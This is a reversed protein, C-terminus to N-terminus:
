SAQYAECSIMSNPDTMANDACISHIFYRKKPTELIMITIAKSAVLETSERDTVGIGKQYPKDPRGKYKIHVFCACHHYKGGYDRLAKADQLLIGRGVSGSDFM